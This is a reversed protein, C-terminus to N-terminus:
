DSVPPELGAQQDKSLLQDGVVAWMAGLPAEM